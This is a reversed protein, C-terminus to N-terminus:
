DVFCDVDFVVVDYEDWVVIVWYVCWVVVIEVVEIDYGFWLLLLDEVVVWCM